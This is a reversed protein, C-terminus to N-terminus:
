ADAGAASLLVDGSPEVTTWRPDLGPASLMVPHDQRRQLEWLLAPRHGHWRIAFSLPGAATPADHVELAQGRWEEPLASCLALGGPADRVLLDRSLSCFGATTEARPWTWTDGAADLVGAIRAVARRDGAMLEVAALQLAPLTSDLSAAPARLRSRIAEVTAGLAPHAPPYLGLPSCGALVATSAASVSGGPGPPLAMQGSRAAQLRLSTDLDARLAAAWCAATSAARDEGAAALLEAADLLGRLSWLSDAYSFRAPRGRSPVLGEAIPDRRAGHRVREIWAAAAAIMAVLDPGPGAAGSLRHHEGISWLVAGNAGPEDPASSRPLAIRGDLRQCTPFEAMIGAAEGEFGWRDLAVLVSATEALTRAGGAEGSHALLLFRRNAAIADAMRGPPLEVQCGRRTQAQWARAAAAADPLVAPPPLFAQRQGRSPRRPSRRGGAGAQSGAVLPVAVRMTARHALPYIFAAQAEGASDLPSQAFVEVAGGSAVVTPLEAGGPRALALRPPRRPLYLAPRGDVMATRDTLDVRGFGHPELPQVAWAVAFPAPSRNELEIVLLEDSRGAGRVAYVRQVADGGPIRMATEVVPTLSLLRQRIGDDSSPFHWRDDAGVWWDVSWSNGWPTVRGRSDV